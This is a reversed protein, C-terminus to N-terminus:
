KECNPQELENKYSVNFKDRKYRKCEHTQEPTFRVGSLLQINYWELRLITFNDRRVVNSIFSTQRYDCKQEIEGDKGRDWILRIDKRSAIQRCLLEVM